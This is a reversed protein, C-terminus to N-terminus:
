NGVFVDESSGSVVSKCPYKTTDNGLPDDIRGLLKGNVFVTKTTSYLKRIHGDSPERGGSDGDTCHWAPTRRICFCKFGISVTCFKTPTPHRILEAQDVIPLKDNIVVDTVTEGAPRQPEPPWIAVSNTLRLPKNVIQGALTAHRCGGLIGGGLGHHHFSSTARGHGSCNGVYLAAGRAM